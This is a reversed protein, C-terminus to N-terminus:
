IEIGSSAQKSVVCRTLQWVGVCSGQAFAEAQRKVLQPEDSGIYAAPKPGLEPKVSLVHNAREKRHARVAGAGPHFPTALTKERGCMSAILDLVGFECGPAVAPDDTEASAQDSIDSSIRQAHTWTHGCDVGPNGHGARVMNRVDFGLHDADVGVAGRGPRVAAGAMGFSSEQNFSHHVLDRPFECEIWGFHSLYIEHRRRGHGM